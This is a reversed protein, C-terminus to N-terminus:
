ENCKKGFQIRVKWVIGCLQRSHNKQYCESHSVPESVQRHKGQSQHVTSREDAQLSPSFSIFNDVLVAVICAFPLCTCQHAYSHPWLSKRTFWHALVFQNNRIRHRHTSWLWRNSEFMTKTPRPQMSIKWNARDVIASHVSRIRIPRMLPHSRLSIADGVASM